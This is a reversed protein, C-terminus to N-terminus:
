KLMLDLQAVINNACDEKSISGWNLINEIDNNKIFKFAGKESGLSDVSNVVIADMNKYKLKDLANEVINSTELAFGILFQNSKKEEGIKKAIDPTEQLTLVFSGKLKPEKQDHYREPTYDSVAAACIFADCKSLFGCVKDLMEQASNIKIINIAKNVPLNNEHVPGTIFDVEGGNMVVAEALCKGMRGSSCNGIFRVPDLFEYTPGSTILIRKSTLM